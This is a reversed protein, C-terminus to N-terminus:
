FERWSMGVVVDTVGERVSGFPLLCARYKVIMRRENHFHSEDEMVQPRAVAEGIRKLLGMGPFSHQSATLEAGMLNKGYVKTIEAGIYAVTYQLKGGHGRLVRLHCCFPWVDEVVSPNFQGMHPMLHEKRLQRWYNILRITLRKDFM